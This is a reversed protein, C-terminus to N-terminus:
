KKTRCKFSEGEIIMESPLIELVEIITGPSSCDYRHRILYAERFESKRVLRDHEYFCIAANKTETPKKIWNYFTPDDEDSSRSITLTVEHLKPEGVPVAKISDIAQAIIFGDNLIEYSKESGELELTKKTIPM